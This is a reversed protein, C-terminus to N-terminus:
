SYNLSYTILLIIISIFVYLILLHTVRFDQIEFEYNLFIIIMLFSLSKIFSRIFSVILLLSYLLIIM